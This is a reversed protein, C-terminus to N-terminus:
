RALGQAAASLQRPREEPDGPLLHELARGLLPALSFRFAGASRPADRGNSQKSLEIVVPPLPPREYGMEEAMAAIAQPARFSECAVHAAELDDRVRRSEEELRDLDYAIAHPAHALWAQALGM